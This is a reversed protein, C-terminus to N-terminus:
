GRAGGELIRKCNAMARRTARALQPRVLWGLSLYTFRGRFTLTNTQTWLTGGDRAEYQWSGGGGAFLPSRVETMALSTRHPRDFLKYQFVCRLGGRMRVRVRPPGRSELIEARLMQGDWERRRSYDQTYDWVAAHPAEIFLRETATIHHARSSGKRAPAAADDRLEEGGRRTGADV